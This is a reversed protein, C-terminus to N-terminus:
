FHINLLLIRRVRTSYSSFECVKSKPQNNKWFYINKVM